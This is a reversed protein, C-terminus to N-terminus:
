LKKDELEKYIKKDEKTRGIWSIQTTKLLYRTLSRSNIDRWSLPIHGGEILNKLQKHALSYEVRQMEKFERLVKKELQKDSLKKNQGM